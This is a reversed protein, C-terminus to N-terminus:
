GSTLYYIVGATLGAVILSVAWPFTKKIKERREDAERKSAEFKTEEDPDFLPNTM